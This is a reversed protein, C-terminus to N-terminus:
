GRAMRRVSRSAVLLMVASAALLAVVSPWLDVPSADRLVIGRMIRIMHTTPFVVSVVKLFFPLGEFPFIYGSLYTAPLFLSQAAQLSSLQTAARASILLGLCLCAFLYLLVMAFLFVLSGHIPVAFVFRMLALVAATEVLGVIIYPALKGLVLGSPRIPTVLLQEFTGQEKERVISGASLMVGIMLLLVAIMGPIIYNASRGEPNFLVIPQAALSPGVDELRALNEHAILGNVSALAQASVTSDSGDILVLVQAPERGIRRAHFDPPIVVGVRASGKRIDERAREPSTTEEVIQFTKSARLEDVLLRSETSRDQDVIVTAVDHVTLDIFGFLVLQMVPILFTLQL